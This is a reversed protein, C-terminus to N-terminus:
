CKQWVPTWGRAPRRRESFSVLMSHWFDNEGARGTAKFATKMRGLLLVRRDADDQMRM